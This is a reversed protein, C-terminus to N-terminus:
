RLRDLIWFIVSGLFIALMVLFLTTTILRFGWLTFKSGAFARPIRSSKSYLEQLMQRFEEPQFWVRYSAYGLCIVSAFVILGIM